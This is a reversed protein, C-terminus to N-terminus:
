KFTWPVTGQSFVAGPAGVVNVGFPVPVASVASGVSGRYVNPVNTATVAVPGVLQGSRGILVDNVKYFMDILAQLQDTYTRSLGLLNAHKALLAPLAEDPIRNPDIYGKSAISLKQKLEENAYAEAIEKELQKIKDLKEIIQANTAAKFQLNINPYQNFATNLNSYIGYLMDYNYFQPQTNFIHYQPISM